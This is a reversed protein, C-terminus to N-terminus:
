GLREIIQRARERAGAPLSCRDPFNPSPRTADIGVKATEGDRSSPDLIAGM